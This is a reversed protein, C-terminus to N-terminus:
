PARAPEVDLWSVGNLAQYMTHYKVEFQRALDACEAGEAYLRKAQAVKTKNLRTSRMNRNQELVSAWRCNFPTYNGNVDIRDLSYGQPRVGMDRYFVEFDTVWEDCVKIGRGGYAPYNKDRVEYCRRLMSYWTKRELAQPKHVRNSIEDYRGGATRLPHGYQWYRMYHTNCFACTRIQTGCGKICCLGDETNLIKTGPPAGSRRKQAAAASRRQRVNM